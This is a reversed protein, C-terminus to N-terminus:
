LNRLASTKKPRESVEDPTKVEPSQSEQGKAHMKVEYPTIKLASPETTMLEAIHSERPLQLYKGKSDTVIKLRLLESENGIKGELAEAFLDFMKDILAKSKKRNQLDSSLAEVSKYGATPDIAGAEPNLLDLINQLQALQNALNSLNNDKEPDLDFYSFETSAIPENKDNFKTFTMYTNRTILEGEKTRPENDIKVLRINENIGFELPTRVPRDALLKRLFAM